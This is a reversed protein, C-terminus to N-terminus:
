RVRFRFDAGGDDGAARLLYDGNGALERPLTIPLNGPPQEAPVNTRWVLRQKADHLELTRARRFPLHLILTFTRDTPGLNVERADDVDLDVVETGIQPQNARQEATRMAHVTTRLARIERDRVAIMGYLEDITKSASTRSLFMWVILPISVAFLVSAAIVVPSDAVNRRSVSM